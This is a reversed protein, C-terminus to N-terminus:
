GLRDFFKDLTLCRPISPVLNFKKSLASPQRVIVSITEVTYDVMTLGECLERLFPVARYELCTWALRNWWQYDAYASTRSRCTAYGLYFTM